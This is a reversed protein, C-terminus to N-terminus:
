ADSESTKMETGTAGAGQSEEDGAMRETNIIHFGSPAISAYKGIGGHTKRVKSFNQTPRYRSCRSYVNLIV